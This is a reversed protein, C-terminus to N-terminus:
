KEPSSVNWLILKSEALKPTSTQESLRHNFGFASWWGEKQQLRCRCEYYGHSHLYKNKHLKGINWQVYDNWFTTQQTPEDMFNYGTQLQSCVPRGDEEVLTFVANSKGDLKVGKDTWAPHRKNMMCLRYDWKSKDLESGDFEDNWVLKWNKDIPLFSSVHGEVKYEKMLM